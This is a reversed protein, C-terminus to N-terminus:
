KSTAPRQEVPVFECEDPGCYEGVYDASPRYLMPKPAAEAFQEEIVHAIWGPIRAIAFVPTFLDVPINLQYYLAGSYFDVNAHIGTKGQETFAALAKKELTTAIEYWKQDGNLDSVKKVMPELIRARPDKTKYVSHGMGMIKGGSEFQKRIYDDIADVSGIEMLMEMVRENAGGHLDGSLSGVAGSISAFMHARTSSIQRATFTSANFSHEAHLVLCIDFIREIERKPVEGTLMYLFNAAHSLDPNPSVPDKGNRIRDFAAMLTPTKAILSIGIDLENERTMRSPHPHHNALFSISGQLIDMPNSGAPRTKLADIMEDEVCRRRKLEGSFDELERIGPLREHLMLYCVEEFTADKALDNILYGRYILKGEDGIVNSIRTSAVKVGRLGTDKFSQNEGTMKTEKRSIPECDFFGPGAQLVPDSIM